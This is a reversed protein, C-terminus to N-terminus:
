TGQERLTWRLPNTLVYEQMAELAEDTRIVRDYSYDFGELRQRRRTPYSTVPLTDHRSDPCDFHAAVREAPRRGVTSVFCNLRKSVLLALSLLDMMPAMSVGVTVM